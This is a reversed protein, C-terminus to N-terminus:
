NQYVLCTLAFFFHSSTRRHVMVYRVYMCRTSSQCNMPVAVRFKTPECCDNGAVFNKIYIYVCMHMYMHPYHPFYSIQVGIRGHLLLM